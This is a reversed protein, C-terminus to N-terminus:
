NDCLGQARVVLASYDMKLEPMAPDHKTIDQGDLWGKDKAQTRASGNLAYVRDDVKALALPLPGECLLEVQPVTFPWAAGVEAETVVLGKAQTEGGGCATLSILAASLLALNLGKRM